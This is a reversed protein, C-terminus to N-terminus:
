RLVSKVHNRRFHGNHVVTQRGGTLRRDAHQDLLTRLEAEVAQAILQRAGSRLLDTLPDMPDSAPQDLDTLTFKNM